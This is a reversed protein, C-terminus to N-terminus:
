TWGAEFVIVQIMMGNIANSLQKRRIIELVPNKRPAIMNLAPQPIITNATRERSWMQSGVNSGSISSQNKTTTRNRLVPEVM